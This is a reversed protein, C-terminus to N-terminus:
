SACVCLAGKAGRTVELVPLVLSEAVAVAEIIVALGGVAFCPACSDVGKRCVVSRVERLALRYSEDLGDLSPAPALAAKLLHDIVPRPVKLHKTMSCRM